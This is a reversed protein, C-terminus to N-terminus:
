RGAGRQRGSRAPVAARMADKYGRARSAALTPVSFDYDSFFPADTREGEANSSRMLDVNGGGSRRTGQSSRRTSLGSRSERSWPRLQAGAGGACRFRRVRLGGPGWRLILIQQLGKNENM